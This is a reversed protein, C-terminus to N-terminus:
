YINLKKKGLESFNELDVNNNMIKEKAFDLANDIDKEENIWGFYLAEKGFTFKIVNAPDCIGLCYVVNLQLDEQLGKEKIQKRYYDHLIKPNGKFEKGCCCGECVTLQNM